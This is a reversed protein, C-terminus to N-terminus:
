IQEDEGYKDSLHKKNAKTEKWVSDSYTRDMLKEQLLYANKSLCVAEYIFFCSILFQVCLGWSLDIPTRIVQYIYLIVIFVILFLAYYIITIRLSETNIKQLKEKSKDYKLINIGLSSLRNLAILPLSGNFFLGLWGV